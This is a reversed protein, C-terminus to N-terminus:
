SHAGHRQQHQIRIRMGSAMFAHQRFLYGTHHLIAMSMPQGLSRQAREIALSKDVGVGKPLTEDFPSDLLFQRLFMGTHEIGAAVGSLGTETDFVTCNTTLRVLNPAKTRCHKWGDVMCTILDSTMADDDGFPLVLDADSAQVMANWAQGISLERDTNDVELIGLHPYSQQGVSEFAERVWPHDTNRVRIMLVDVKLPVTDVPKSLDTYRLRDNM